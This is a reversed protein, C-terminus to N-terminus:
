HINVTSKRQISQNSIASGPISGPDGASCASEKGDSASPFNMSIYTVSNIIKRRKHLYYCVTYVKYKM